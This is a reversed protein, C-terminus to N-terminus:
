AAEYTGHITLVDGNGWTFPAASTVQRDANGATTAPTVLAITSTGSRLGRMPFNGVGSDTATGSFSWEVAVAAVPLSLSWGGTGYTTTSGMTITIRFHVTTGFQAYAGVIAGNGIAPNVSATWSPAYSSWAQPLYTNLQAATLVAGASWVM